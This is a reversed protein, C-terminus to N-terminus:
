LAKEVHIVELSHSDQQRKSRGLLGIELDGAGAKVESPAVYTLVNDSHCTVIWGPLGKLTVVSFDGGSSGPKVGGKERLFDKADSIPDTGNKALIVCTGQKFLVWTKDRQNRLLTKWLDIM